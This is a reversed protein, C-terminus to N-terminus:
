CFASILSLTIILLLAPLFTYFILMKYFKLRSALMANTEASAIIPFYNLSLSLFGISLIQAVDFKMLRNFFKAMLVIAAFNILAPIRFFWKLHRPLTYIIYVSLSERDIIESAEKKSLKGARRSKECERKIIESIQRRGKSTYFHLVHPAYSSINGFIESPNIRQEGIEVFSREMDNIINAPDPSIIEIHTSRADGVILDYRQSNVKTYRRRGVKFWKALIDAYLCSYERSASCLEKWKYRAAELLSKNDSRPPFHKLPTLQECKVTFCRDVTLDLPIYAIYNYAFRCLDKIFAKGADTHTYQSVCSIFTECDKKFRELVHKLEGSSPEREALHYKAYDFALLSPNFVPNLSGLWGYPLEDAKEEVLRKSQEGCDPMVDDAGLEETANPYHSSIRRLAWEAIIDSSFIPINAKDPHRANGLYQRMEDEIVKPQSYILAQAIRLFADRDAGDTAKSAPMLFHIFDCTYSVSEYRTLLNLPRDNQDRVTFSMLVRKPLSLFPLICRIPNGKGTADQVRDEFMHALVNKIRDEFVMEKIAKLSLDYAEKVLSPPICLQLSVIGEFSQENVPHIYIVERERWLLYDRLLLTILSRNFIDEVVSLPIGSEM